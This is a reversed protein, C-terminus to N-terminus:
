RVKLSKRIFEVIYITIAVSFGEALTMLFPIGFLRFSHFGSYSYYGNVFSVIDFYFGLASGAAFYFFYAKRNKATLQILLYGLFLAAVLAYWVKYADIV